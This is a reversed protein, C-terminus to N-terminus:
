KDALKHVNKICEKDIFFVSFELIFSQFCQDSAVKTKSITVSQEFTDLPLREEYEGHEASQHRNLGRKSKYTIRCYKQM